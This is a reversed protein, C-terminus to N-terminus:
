FHFYLPFPMGPNNATFRIALWGNKPVGFTVVQPPDVLNFGKPDTENDYNGFGFGVVSFSYGHMHMPHNVSSKMVDTGQFVIQVTENYDLMKVKTGQVTFLIDEEFTEDTFNYYQTPQDLFDTTYM